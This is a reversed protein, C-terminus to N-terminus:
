QSLLLRHSFTPQLFPEVRHQQRHHPLLLDLHPDYRVFLKVGIGYCSVYRRRKRVNAPAVKENKGIAPTVFEVAERNDTIGFFVQFIEELDQIRWASVDCWCQTADDFFSVGFRNSEVDSTHATCGVTKCM